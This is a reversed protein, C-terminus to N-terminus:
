AEEEEGEEDEDSQAAGFLDIGADEALKVVHEMVENAFTPHGIPDEGLWDGLRAQFMALLNGEYHAIENKFEPDNVSYLIKKAIEKAPAMSRFMAEIEDVVTKRVERSQPGSNPVAVVQSIPITAPRSQEVEPQPLERPQPRYNGMQQPQPQPGRQANAQALGALARGIERVIKMGQPEEQPANMNAIEAMTTMNQVMMQSMSSMAAAIPEIMKAGPNEGQKSLVTELIKGQQSMMAKTSEREAQALERMAQAEIKKSERMSEIIPGMIPAIAAAIGAIMEMVNTKPAEPQRVEAARRQADELKRQADRLDNEIRRMEDQSRRTIQEFELRRQADLQVARADSEARVARERELALQGQLADDRPMFRGAGAGRDSLPQPAGSTQPASPAQMQPGLSTLVEVSPNKRKFADHLFFVSTPGKWAKDKIQDFDPSEIPDGPAQVIIRAGIPKSLDKSHYATIEFQGNRGAGGFLAGVWVEPYVVHEVLGRDFLALTFPPDTPRDRRAVRIRWDDGVQNAMEKLIAITEETSFTKDAM